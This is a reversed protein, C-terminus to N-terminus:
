TGNNLVAGTQLVWKAQDREWVALPRLGGLSTSVMPAYNRVIAELPSSKVIAEIENGSLGSAYLAGVFSGMSTGVILDPM